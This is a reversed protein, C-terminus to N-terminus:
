KKLFLLIFGFTVAVQGIWFIFMWRIIDTKANAIKAEIKNDIKEELSVIKEGISIFKTDMKEEVSIFKADMKEEISIFKTDVYNKFSQFDKNIFEITQGNAGTVQEKVAEEITQVLEMSREEPLHFDKRFIDYLKIAAATM